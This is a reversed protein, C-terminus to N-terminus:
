SSPVSSRLTCCMSAFAGPMSERIRPGASMDGTVVCYKSDYYSSVPGRSFDFSIADLRLFVSFGTKCGRSLFSLVDDLAPM